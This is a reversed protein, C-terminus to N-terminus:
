EGLPEIKGLLEYLQAKETDTFEKLLQDEIMEVSEIIESFTAKASESLEIIRERKDKGQSRIIWGSKEMRELTRTTTPAEVNLYSWIETQTMPGFKGLCFLISWQSM